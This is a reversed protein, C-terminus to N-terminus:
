QMWGLKEAIGTIESIPITHCGVTLMNDVYGAVRYNHITYDSFDGTEIRKSLEAFYQKAREIPIRIGKSTEVNGANVRMKILGEGIDPVRSFARKEIGKLSDKFGDVCNNKWANIFRQSISPVLESIKTQMEARKKEKETMYAPDNKALEKRKQEREFAAVADRWQDSSLYQYLKLLDVNISQKSINEKLGPFVSMYEELRNLWFSIESTYKTPKTAKGIKLYSTQISTLMDTINERHWGKSANEPNYCDVCKLHSIARWVKGMQKATTNSYNRYTCLVIGNHHTAIPFHRGYSYITDGEFYFTRNANKGEHQQRNAWIHPLEHNSFVTKM